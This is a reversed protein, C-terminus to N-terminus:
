HPLAPNNLLVEDNADTASDGDDESSTADEEQAEFISGSKEGSDGDAVEADEEESDDLVMRKKKAAERKGGFSLKRPAPDTCCTFISTPGRGQAECLAM